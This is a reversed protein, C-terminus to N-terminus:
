KVNHAPEVLLTNEEEGDTAKRLTIRGQEDTEYAVRDGLKVGMHSMWKDDLELCGHEDLTVHAPNTM